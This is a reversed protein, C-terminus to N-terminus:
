CLVLFVLIWMGRKVLINDIIKEVKHNNEDIKKKILKIHSLVMSNITNMNSSADNNSNNNSTTDIALLAEELHQLFVESNHSSRKIRNNLASSQTKVDSELQFRNRLMKMFIM